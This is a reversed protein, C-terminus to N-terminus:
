NEGDIRNWLRSSFEPVDTRDDESMRRQNSLAGQPRRKTRREEREEEGAGAGTLGGTAAALLGRARAARSGGGTRRPRPPPPPEDEDDVIAPLPEPPRPSRKQTPVEEEDEDDAYLYERATGATVYGVRGGRSSRGSDREQASEPASQRINSWQPRGSDSKRAATLQGALSKVSVVVSAIASTINALERDSDDYLHVFVSGDGTFGQARVTAVTAKLASLRASALETSETTALAVQETAYEIFESGSMEHLPGNDLVLDAISEVRELAALFGCKAAREKM